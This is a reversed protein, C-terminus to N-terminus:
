SKARDSPRPPAERSREAIKGATWEPFLLTLVTRYVIEAAGRVDRLALGSRSGAHAVKNRMQALEDIDLLLEPYLRAGRAIPHSGTPDVAAAILAALLRANISEQGRHDSVSRIKGLRVNVLTDPLRGRLGMKFGLRQAISNLKEANGVRNSEELGLMRHGGATPYREGMEIFVRELAVQATVIGMRVTRAIAKLDPMAAATEAEAASMELDVLEERLDEHDRIEAPFLREVSEEAARRLEVAYALSSGGSVDGGGFLHRELASTFYRMKPRATIERIRRLFPRSVGLGFPDAVDWAEGEYLKDLSIAYTLLFVPTPEGVQIIGSLSDEREAGLSEERDDQLQRGRRLRNKVVDRQYKRYASTIEGAQPSIARVRELLVRCAREWRPRGSTGVFVNVFRANKTETPEVLPLPIQDTFRNWLVGSWPDQYLTTSATESSEALENGFLLKGPDTPEGLDNLAGLARLEALIRRALSRPGTNQADEADPRILLRAIREPDRTGALCLRLVHTQFLNFRREITKRVLVQRAIAPWLFYFRRARASEDGDDLTEPLPFANPKFYLIRTDTSFSVEGVNAKAPGRLAKPSHAGM